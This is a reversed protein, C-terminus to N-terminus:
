LEYKERNKVILAVTSLSMKRGDSGHVEADNRIEEYTCKKDRLEFIRRVVMMEEEHPVLKGDVRRKGFMCRGVYKKRREIEREIEYVLQKAISEEDTHVVSILEVGSLLLKKKLYLYESEMMGQDTVLVPCVGKYEEIDGDFTAAVIMEYKECFKYVDGHGCVIM